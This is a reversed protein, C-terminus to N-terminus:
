PACSAESRVFARWAEVVRASAEVQPYHGVDALEVIPGGEGVERRYHEVLHRGSVPDLSGNVLALPVKADKLAGVWRSRKERREPMYGLLKPIVRRGDNALIMSWFADLEDESPQTDPGFVASFSTAFRRRSLTRALLPGLPGYLLKQILRPRHAEPFLGGNLFCVSLLGWAGTGANRRALLEQAVTDGYDHALVHFDTIGRQELLAECRDAQDAISYAHDAPKDSFGYGLLDPALLRHEAALDDWIWSWDWSATPFGHILLVASNDLDDTRGCRAADDGSDRVFLDHGLVREFRGAERWAQLPIRIAVQRGAGRTSDRTGLM